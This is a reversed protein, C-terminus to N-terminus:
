VIAADVMEGDEENGHINDADSSDKVEGRKDAPMGTFEDSGDGQSSAWWRLTFIPLDEKVKAAYIAQLGYFFSAFGAVLAILPDTWWAEPSYEIIITNLFLATALVTGLLSCIGDKYLSASDLKNAYHFKFVTMVLFIPISLVSIILAADSDFEEGAGKKIDNSAAGIIVIGLLVLIFSIAVSARKERSRLKGEVEEDVKRSPTFFRWLVVVSSLCDVLNELAFV